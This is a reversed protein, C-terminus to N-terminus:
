YCRKPLKNQTTVDSTVRGRGVRWNPIQTKKKWTKWIRILRKNLLSFIILTENCDNTRMPSTNKKRWRSTYNILCIKRRTWASLMQMKWNLLKLIIDMNAQPEVLGKELHTITSWDSNHTIRKNLLTKLLSLETLSDLTNTESLGMIFENEISSLHILSKKLM